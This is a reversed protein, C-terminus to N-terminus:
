GKSNGTKCTQPRRRFSDKYNRLGTSYVLSCPTVDWFVIKMGVIMLAEVQVNINTM